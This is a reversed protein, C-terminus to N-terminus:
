VSRHVAEGHGQNDSRRHQWKPGGHWHYHCGRPLLLSALPVSSVPVSVVLSM